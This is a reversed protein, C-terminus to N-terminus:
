VEVINIGYFAKMLKKKIIYEKTKFGKADWVEEKDKGAWKVVFDARYSCIKVGDFVFPYPVQCRISEIKGGTQLLKLDNYVKAEKKSAFTRGDVVVRQNGYKNKRSKSKAAQALNRQHLYDALNMTNRAMRAEESHCDMMKM